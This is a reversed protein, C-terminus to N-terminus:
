SGDCDGEIEDKPSFLYLDGAWDYAYILGDKIEDLEAERYKGIEVIKGNQISFPYIWGIITKGDEVRRKWPGEANRM